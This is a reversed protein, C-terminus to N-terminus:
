VSRGKTLVWQVSACVLVLALYTMMKGDVGFVLLGAVLVAVGMGFLICFRQWWRWRTATKRWLFQGALTLAAAIFAAPLVFNVVHLLLQSLSM